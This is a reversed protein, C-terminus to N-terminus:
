HSASKTFSKVLKGHHYSVRSDNPLFCFLKSLIFLIFCSPSFETKM